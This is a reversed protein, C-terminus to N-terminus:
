SLARADTSVYRKRLWRNLLDICIFITREDVSVIQYGTLHKITTTLREGLLGRISDVPLKGGAEALLVCVALEDPFDRDLREVIEQFDGSRVDLYRDLIAEVMGYDVDLPRDRYQGAMFSCLQRAFFPHGGTLDYVRQQAEASFHLGMGRGLERMMLRCETLELPALYVEKFFNFVPNDRRDFQASESIAANAGTVIVVFDRHEQSVGRLYGFFDFFGSFGPKGLFTPLLREVEDLLIVIRPRPRIPSTRIINLLKSLDSDFGTAIPFGPPIDLFDAFAGGVRWKVSPLPLHAIARRLEDALKWYLWGCDSIDSPVRLLDVYVVVDGQETARRQAEKLLSTKGVKRLGFVGTPTASSMADRLQALPKDRGFFRKGEVPSSGAFLDRRYLWRDLVARLITLAEASTEIDSQQIPVLAPLLTRKEEIRASLIKQLDQPLSAVVLLAVQEDGLGSLAWQRISDDIQGLDALALQAKFMCRIILHRALGYTERLEPSDIQVVFEAGETIQELLTARVIEFHAAKLFHICLNGRHHQTAIRAINLRLLDAEPLQTSGLGFLHLAAEYYRISDKLSAFSDIQYHTRALALLVGKEGGQATRRCLALSEELFRVAVRFENLSAALIGADERLKAVNPFRKIGEEYVRIAAQKRRRNKEMAAYSLILQVTPEHQLGKEYLRAADDYQRADRALIAQALWDARGTEPPVEALTLDQAQLGKQTRVLKCTVELGVTPIITDDLFSSIHFFAEQGERTGLFGFGRDQVYHQIRASVRQEPGSDEVFEPHVDSASGGQQLDTVCFLVRDGRRLRTTRSRLSTRHFLLLGNISQDPDPAIFGYGERDRYGDVTGRYYEATNEPM